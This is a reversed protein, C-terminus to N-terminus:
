KKKVKRTCAVYLNILIKAKEISIKFTKGDTKLFISDEGFTLDEIKRTEVM